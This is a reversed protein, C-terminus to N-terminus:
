WFFFRIGVCAFDFDVAAEEEEAEEEVEECISLAHNM